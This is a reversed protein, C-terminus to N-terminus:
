PTCYCLSPLLFCSPLRILKSFIFQLPLRLTLSHICHKGNSFDYQFDWYVNFENLIIQKKKGRQRGGGYLTYTAVHLLVSSTINRNVHSYHSIHKFTSTHYNQQIHQILKTFFYVPQNGLPNGIATPWHHVPHHTM